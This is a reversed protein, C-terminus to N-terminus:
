KKPIVKNSKSHNRQNLTTNLSSKSKYVQNASSRTNNGQIASSNNNNTNNNNNLNNNNLSVNVANKGRKKNLLRSIFDDLNLVENEDLLNISISKSKEQYIIRIKMGNVLYTNSESEVKELQYLEPNFFKVKDEFLKEFMMDGIDEEEISKLQNKLPEKKKEKSTSSNSCSNNNSIGSSGPSSSLIGNNGTNIPKKTSSNVLTFLYNILKHYSSGALKRAIALLKEKQICTNRRSSSLSTSAENNFPLLAKHYFVDNLNEITKVTIDDISRQKSLYLSKLKLMKKSLIKAKASAAKSKREFSRLLEKQKRKYDFLGGLLIANLVHIDNYSDVITAVELKLYFLDEPLMSVYNKTYTQTFNKIAISLTKMDEQNASLKQEESLLLLVRLKCYFDSYQNAIASPNINGTTITNINNITNISNSVTNIENLVGTSNNKQVNLNEKNSNTKELVNNLDFNNTDTTLAANTNEAQSATTSKNNNKNSDNIKVPTKKSQLSAGSKGTSSASGKDKKSTNSKKANSNSTTPEVLGKTNKYKYEINKPLSSSHNTESATEDAAPLLESINNNNMTSSTYNSSNTINFNNSAAKAAAKQLSLLASMSSNNNANKNGCSTMQINKNDLYQKYAKINKANVEKIIDETVSDRLKSNNNNNDKNTISNSSERKETVPLTSELKEFDKERSEKSKFPLTNSTCDYVLYSELNIKVAGKINKSKGATNLSVWKTYNEQKKDFVSFPIIFNGKLEDKQFSEHIMKLEVKLEKKYNTSLKFFENSVETEKGKYESLFKKDDVIFSVTFNDTPLDQLCCVEKVQFHINICM